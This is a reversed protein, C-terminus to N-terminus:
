GHLDDFDLGRGKQRKAPVTFKVLSRTLASGHTPSVTLTHTDDTDLGQSATHNSDSRRREGLVSMMIAGPHNPHLDNPCSKSNVKVGSDAIEKFIKELHKEEETTFNLMEDANEILLEKQKLRPLTSRPRTCLLKPGPGKKDHAGEPERGFVMGQVVRSGSLSGGMIKMVRVNDVNINKPNPPMIALAAEAVLAALADEYGYQKSAIAPKLASALTSQTLPTPLSFTSLSELEVLAKACALEYGKIVESPHLGMILFNEAKKLLEGGLILVMNTSDGMEAEQAQSAMVLLKAAPHVVEIERIITAADSTVFLRGLHNILLKNRGIIHYSGKISSITSSFAGNPGFSTRVLDSLESVAHINRLVADELGQLHKYGEKFLQVNNAKPVKLSM